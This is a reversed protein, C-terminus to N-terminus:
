FFLLLFLLSFKPCRTLLFFLFHWRAVQTQRLRPHPEYSVKHTVASKARTWAKAIGGGAALGKSTARLDASQVLPCDVFIISHFCFLLM